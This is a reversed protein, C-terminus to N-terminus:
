PDCISKRESVHRVQDQKSCQLLTIMDLFISILDLVSVAASTEDSVEPLENVCTFRIGRGTINM